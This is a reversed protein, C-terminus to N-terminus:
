HCLVPYIPHQLPKIRRGSRTQLNAELVRIVKAQVELLVLGKRREGQGWCRAFISRRVPM